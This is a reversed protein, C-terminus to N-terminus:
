CPSSSHPTRKRCSAWCQRCCARGCSALRCCMCPRQQWGTLRGTAWFSSCPKWFTSTTSQHLQRSVPLTSLGWWTANQRHHNEALCEWFRASSPSYSLSLLTSPLQPSNLLSILLTASLQPPLHPTSFPQPSNLLSILLTSSLQPPLTQTTTRTPTSNANSHTEEKPMTPNFGNEPTARDNAAKM